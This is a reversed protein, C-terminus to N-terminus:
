EESEAECEHCRTYDPNRYYECNKCKDESEQPELMKAGCYPCYDWYDVGMSKCESCYYHKDLIEDFIWHGTKPEQERILGHKKFTDAVDKISWSDTKPEQPNVPPLECIRHIAKRLEQNSEAFPHSVEGTEMNVGTAYTIGFAVADIAAQRSIVDECPEVKLAEIALEFHSYKNGSVKANHICRELQYIAEEREEKTM